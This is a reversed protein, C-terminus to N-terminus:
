LWCREFPRLDRGGVIEPKCHVYAALLSHSVHWSSLARQRSIIYTPNQQAHKGVLRRHRVVTNPNRRGSTRRNVRKCDALQGIVDITKQEPLCCRFLWGSGSSV